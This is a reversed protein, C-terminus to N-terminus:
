PGVAIKRYCGLEKVTTIEKLERIVDATEPTWAYDLFFVYNGIGRKSPRSEIRTLSIKRKAFAGSCTTSCGPGTRTRTSSCAASRRGHTGPPNERSGSLAPPTPPITRPQPSSSRCSTSRQRRQRSSQAPM